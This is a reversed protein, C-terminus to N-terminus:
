GLRSCSSACRPTKLSPAPPLQGHGRGQIEKWDERLPVQRGLRKAQGFSISETFGWALRQTNERLKAAQFAHEVSPYRLGEFNLPSWFFNSLFQYAGQFREVKGQRPIRELEAVEAAIPDAACSDPQYGNRRVRWSRRSM